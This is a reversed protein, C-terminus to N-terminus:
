DPARLKVQERGWFLEKREEVEVERVLGGLRV